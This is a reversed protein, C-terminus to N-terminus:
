LRHDERHPAGCGPNLAGGCGTGSPRISSARSIRSLIGSKRCPARERACRGVSIFIDLSAPLNDAIERETNPWWCM